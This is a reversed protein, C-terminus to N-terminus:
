IFYSLTHLFSIIKKMHTYIHAYMHMCFIGWGSYKTHAENSIIIYACCKCVLFQKAAVPIISWVFSTYGGLNHPFSNQVCQMKLVGFSM